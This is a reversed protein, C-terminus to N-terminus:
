GNYWEQTARRGKAEGDECLRALPNVVFGWEKLKELFEWHTKVRFDGYDDCAYAFFKLPRSATIKPDLQRVSGAAANRPNAFLPIHQTEREKNMEMFDEHRMYVEGRIETAPPFDDSNVLKPIDKLTNLNATIDEMYFCLINLNVPFKSM